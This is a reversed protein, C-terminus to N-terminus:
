LIYIWNFTTTFLNFQGHSFSTLSWLGHEICTVWWLEFDSKVLLATKTMNSNASTTAIEMNWLTHKSWSSWILIQQINIPSAPIIESFLSHMARLEFYYLCKGRLHWIVIKIAEIGETSDLEDMLLFSYCLVCSNYSVLRISLVIRTFKLYKRGWRVREDDMSVVCSMSWESRLEGIRTM